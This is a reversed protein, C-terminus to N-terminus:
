WYVPGEYVGRKFHMIWKAGHPYPLNLKLIDMTNGWRGSGDFFVANSGAWANSGTRHPYAYYSYYSPDEPWKGDGPYTFSLGWSGAYWPVQADTTVAMDGSASALKTPRNGQRAVTPGTIAPRSTFNKSFSVSISSQYWIGIPGYSMFRDQATGNWGVAPNEMKLQAHSPCYYAEPSGTLSQLLPRNDIYGDPSSTIFHTAWSKYLPLYGANSQSYNIAGSAIM